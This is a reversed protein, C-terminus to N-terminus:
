KTTLNSMITMKSVDPVISMKTATSDHGSKDSSTTSASGMTKESATRLRAALGTAGPMAGRFHELTPLKIQAKLGGAGADGGTIPAGGRLRASMVGIAGGGRLRGALAGIGAVSRLRASLNGAKDSPPIAGRSFRESKSAVIGLLVVTVLLVFIIFNHLAKESMKILLSFFCKFFLYQRTM